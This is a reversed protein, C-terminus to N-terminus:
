PQLMWGLTLEDANPRQTPDLVLAQRVFDFVAADNNEGLFQLSNFVAHQLPSLDQTASGDGYNLHANPTFWNNEFWDIDVSRDLVVCGLAWVDVKRGDEVQRTIVEPAIFGPTGCMEGLATEDDLRCVIGFDILRVDTIHIGNASAARVLINESKIDRHAYGLSHVYQLADCIAKTVKMTNKDHVNIGENANMSFELFNTGFREMAYTMCTSSHIVELIPLINRRHLVHPDQDLLLKIESKARVISKTTLLKRKNMMKLALSRTEGRKKCSFITGSCGSGIEATLLFEGFHSGLSFDGPNVLQHARLSEFEDFRNPIWDWLIKSLNRSVAHLEKRTKTYMEALAQYGSEPDQQRLSKKRKALKELEDFETTISVIPHARLLRNTDLLNCLPENAHHVGGNTNVLTEVANSIRSFDVSSDEDAAIIWCRVM